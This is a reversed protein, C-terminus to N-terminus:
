LRLITVIILCLVGVFCVASDFKFKALYTMMYKMVAYNDIGRLKEEVKQVFTDMDQDDPHTELSEQFVIMMEWLENIAKASSIYQIASKLYCKYYRRIQNLQNANAVTELDKFIIRQVGVRNKILTESTVPKLAMDKLADHLDDMKQCLENARKNM